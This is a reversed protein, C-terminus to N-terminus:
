SSSSADPGFERSEREVMRRVDEAANLCHSAGQVWGSMTKYRDWDKINGSLLERSKMQLGGPGYHVYDVFVEWDPHKTLEELRAAQEVLARYEDETM